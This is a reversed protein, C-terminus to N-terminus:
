VEQLNINNDISLYCINFFAHDVCAEMIYKLRGKDEVMMYLRFRVWGIISEAM